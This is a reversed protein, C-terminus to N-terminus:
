TMKGDCLPNTFQRMEGEEIGANSTGRGGRRRGRRGRRWRRRRRRRACRSGCGSGRRRSESSRVRRQRERQRPRRMLIKRPFSHSRSPPAAQVLSSSPSSSLPTPRVSASAHGGSHTPFARADDDYALIRVCFAGATAVCGGTPRPRAPLGGDDTESSAAAAICARRGVSRRCRAGRALSSVPLFFSRLGESACARSARSGISSPPLSLCLSSPSRVGM